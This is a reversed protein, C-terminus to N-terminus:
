SDITNCEAPSKAAEALRLEARLGGEPRNILCVEGGHSRAIQRVIALGLGSGGTDRNRSSELRYFPEFVKELEAEPLGPGSDQVSIGIGDTTREVTIDARGGYKVANEILNVLARKLAKPRGACRLADPAQLTVAAHDAYDDVLSELLAVLDIPQVAEHVSQGRLFDLASDLLDQMDDVDSRFRERLDADALMETRLRLRTVPTKLDHSIAALFREREEIGNRIRRQMTNFAQAAERVESPGTEALPPSKLDNSLNHAAQALEILPRVTSRAAVLMLGLVAVLLLGLNPLLYLPLDFVEKPISGHVRLWDGSSLQLYLDFAYSGFRPLEVIRMAVASGLLGALHRPFDTLMTTGDVSPPASARLTLQQSPTALLLALPQRNSAAQGDIARYVAGLRQALEHSVSHGLSRQREHLQIAAGALQAVILGVTMLWMLRASMTRPLKRM